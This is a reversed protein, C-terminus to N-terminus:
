EALQTAFQVGFQFAAELEEESPVFKFRFTEEMVNMGLGKLRSVANPVGEGSWGYSGFVACKKGRGGIADVHSLLVTVPALMDRNITPTGILFADSCALKASLECMDHEIINWLNVKAQPLVNLIGEQIKAAAKATCGYASVYFIEINQGDKQVPASWQAYLEKVQDLSHKTLVPGHSPCVMEVDLANVKALGKQVHGAFPGFIANYYLQLEQQYAQPYKVYKDLLRPECYHCGFFDCTFLVKDEEALTFISDPWHLFPATIFRLTHGGLDLTQGEKVVQFAFPRNVIEKLYMGAAGSGLVTAKPALELLAALAGSHDPETHNLIIYDIDAPHVVQRINELYEEFFEGHCAEILAVKERGKILYANYTTGHEAPMIIDFVRLNPNQVGVSYIDEKLKILGM